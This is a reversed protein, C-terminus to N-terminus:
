AAPRAFRAAAAEMAQQQQEQENLVPVADIEAAILDRKDGPLDNLYSMVVRTKIEKTATEGVDLGIVAGAAKAVENFDPVEFTDPYAVSAGDQEARTADGYFAEYTLELLTNETRQLEAVYKSLTNHMDQRKLKLSGTAEADKSDSEWPCSALRYIMRNLRDEHAQYVTVNSGDPSIYKADLTSFLVNATGSQQGMLNMETQANGDKGVPVNLIGFTQNRLLEREESVLNYADIHMEPDGIVSKGVVPITTRRKGYLFVCPLRSFGHDAGDIQKGSKDYLAWAKQDIVRVRYDNVVPRTEFSVRPAAELLKVATVDGDDNVLWDIIDLPTYRCLHPGQVDAQTEADMDAKEMVILAHGFVAAAIWSEHMFTDIDNGRGDVNKWWASIDENATKFTRSPSKQFLAGTVTDIIAAAINEYRALKRRMKLKPSPKSPNENPVMAGTVSDKTSHDLWERPHPVLYPREEDLFGGVGEYVDHAKRWSASFAAYLPHTILKAATAM